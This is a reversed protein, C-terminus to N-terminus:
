NNYVTETAETELPGVTLAFAHVDPYFRLMFVLDWGVRRSYGTVLIGDVCFEDSKEFLNRLAAELEDSTPIRGDMLLERNRCIACIQEVDLWEANKPDKLMLKGLTSLSEAISSVKTTPTVTNTTTNM